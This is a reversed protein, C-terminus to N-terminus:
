GVGPQRTFTGKWNSGTLILKSGKFSYKILTDFLDTVTITKDGNDVWSGIHADDVGDISIHLHYTGDSSIRLEAEHSPYGNEKITGSWRGIITKDSDDSGGNNDDDKSCSSFSLATSLALVLMLTMSLFKNAKM